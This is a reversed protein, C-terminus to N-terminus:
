FLRVIFILISVIFAYASNLSTLLQRFFCFFM